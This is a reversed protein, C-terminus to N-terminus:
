LSSYIVVWASLITGTLLFYVGNWRLGVQRASIRAFSGILLTTATFPSTVGSLAWGATIAVILATPSVGLEAAPPVLPAILTVALIPNMAIQGALPIIWVFAILVLPTPLAALDLGLGSLLPELLPAGVTGIYGAMMLLLIESRYAPLERFSYETLRRPIRLEPQASRSQLATWVLSIMPVILIVMGVVRVDTVYHLLTISSVLIALLVLLPLISAWSGEPPRPAPRPGSLTPRFLSDLAWGTGALLISSVIGPLVAQAWTAGPILAVSIAVAFSLPSWPLMSTFARQIALLMRRTRHRRIEPDPEENASATALSGLLAISGYNLLLAFMQGGLTLALYRRGPPQQALFRGARRISDSTEAAFRLTALATFFACIFGATYLAKLTVAQWDPNALTLTITLALAVLAFLYRGARTQLALLLTTAIVLWPLIMDALAITTWERLIVLGTIALLMIGTTRNVRTSPKM